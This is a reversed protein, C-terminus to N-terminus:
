VTRVSKYLGKLERDKDALIEEYAKIKAQLMVPDKHPNYASKVCIPSFGLIKCVRDRSGCLCSTKYSQYLISRERSSKPINPKDKIFALFNFWPNTM